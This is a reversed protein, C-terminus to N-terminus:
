QQPLLGHVRMHWELAQENEFQQMPTPQPAAEAFPKPAPAAASTASAGAMVWVEVLRQRAPCRPNRQQITSINVSAALRSVLDGPQATADFSVLPDTDGEYRLRFGLKDAMRKLVESLPAERVSLHVGAACSIRMVGIQQAQVDAAPCLLIAGLVLTVPGFRGARSAAKRPMM